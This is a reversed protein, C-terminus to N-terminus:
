TFLNKIFTYMDITSMREVANYHLCQKSIADLAPIALVKEFLILLVRGFSYIDSFKDQCRLGDRLDPAIHPHKSVYVKREDPSLLYNKGNAILCSKGFDIIVAKIQNKDVIELVINDEKLDNHLIGCKEHIYHLGDTIGLIIQKWQTSSIELSAFLKQSSILINHM